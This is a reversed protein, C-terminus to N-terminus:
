TAQFTSDLDMEQLLRLLARLLFAFLLLFVLVIWSVFSSAPETPRSGTPTHPRQPWMRQTPRRLTPLMSAVEHHTLFLQCKEEVERYCSIPLAPWSFRRKQKQGEAFGGKNMKVTRFNTLNIKEHDLINQHRQGARKLCSWFSLWRIITTLLEKDQSLLM